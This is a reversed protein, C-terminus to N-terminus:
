FPSRWHEDPAILIEELVAEITVCVPNKGRAFRGAWVAGSPDAVISSVGVARGADEDDLSIEGSMSLVEVAPGSIRRLAGAEDQYTVDILSGLGSRVLARRFGLRAAAQDLGEILDENPGLRVSAVRGTIIEQVRSEPM